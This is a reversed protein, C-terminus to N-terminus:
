RLSLGLETLSAVGREISLLADPIFESITGALVSRMGVEESALEGARGHIYAGCVAAQWISLGQALLGGIIGSLVDGAGAKAMSANGTPNIAVHGEADAIVSYSGKLVVVCGFQRAARLAAEVRNFQIEETSIGLLRSLEKPHPTLVIQHAAESLCGRELSIANLADADILCPTDSMRTLTESVFEHVFQVTLKDTSLGPGLVIARARKLDIDLAEIADPHISQKETEALPRYIVEKAPLSAILSEPTALLSLGCGIRLSSETSLLAAGTMGLSGAITVLTGYSGKNSNQQREPLHVSVHEVTTCSINPTAEPLPPLGIDVMNLAGSLAAGPHCLQGVKAYGFTATRSAKIALGMIQGNDSNIGSAIDVALIPKQSSNIYEIAEKFLGTIDRVLGTGFMADIILCPETLDLQALSAPDSVLEIEIGLQKALRYNTQAEDSAMIEALNQDEANGKAEKLIMIQVPMQWLKLYRAIVLGDGGNNGTGCFVYIPDKKVPAARPARPPPSDFYMEYAVRAAGAGALEMLTQGWGPGCSNILRKELERIQESTAIRLM